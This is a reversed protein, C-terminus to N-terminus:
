NLLYISWYRASSPLFSALEQACFAPVRSWALAAPIESPLRGWSRSVRSSPMAMARPATLAALFYGSPAWVAGERKKGLVIPGGRSGLPQATSYMWRARWAPIRAPTSSPWPPFVMALGWPIEVRSSIAVMPTAIRSATLVLNSYASDPARFAYFIQM